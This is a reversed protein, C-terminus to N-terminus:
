MEFYKTELTDDRGGGIRVCDCNVFIDEILSQSNLRPLDPGLGGFNDHIRATLNVSNQDSVPNLNLEHKPVISSLTSWLSDPWIHRWSAVANLNALNATSRSSAKAPGISISNAMSFTFIFRQFTKFQFFRIKVPSCKGAALEVM